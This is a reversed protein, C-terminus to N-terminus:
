IASRKMWAVNQLNHGTFYVILIALPDGFVTTAEDFSVSLPPRPGREQRAGGSSRRRASRDLSEDGGKLYLRRSNGEM